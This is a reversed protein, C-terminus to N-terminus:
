NSPKIVLAFSLDENNINSTVEQTIKKSVRPKSARPKRQTKYCRWFAREEHVFMKKAFSLSEKEM